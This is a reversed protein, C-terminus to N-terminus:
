PWLTLTNKVLAMVSAVHLAVSLDNPWLLHNMQTGASILLWLFFPSISLWIRSFDLAVPHLSFHMTLEQCSLCSLPGPHDVLPTSKSAITKQVYEASSHMAASLQMWFKLSFPFIGEGVKPHGGVPLDCCITGPDGSPFIHQLQSNTVDLFQEKSKNEEQNFYIGLQGCHEHPSVSGKHHPRSSLTSDGFRTPLLRPSSNPM